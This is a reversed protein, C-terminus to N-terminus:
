MIHYLLDLRKFCVHNHRILVRILRRFKELSVQKFTLRVDTTVDLSQFGTNKSAIDRDFKSENRVSKLLYKEVGVKWHLKSVRANCSM